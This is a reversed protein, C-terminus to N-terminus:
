CPDFHYGFIMTIRSFNTFSSAKCEDYHRKTKQLKIFLKQINPLPFRDLLFGFFEQIQNENPVTHNTEYIVTTM